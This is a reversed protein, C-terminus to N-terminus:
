PALTYPTTDGDGNTVKIESKLTFVPRIGMSTTFSENTLWIGTSDLTWNDNIYRMNFYDLGGSHSVYRSALWYENNSKLIQLIDMQDYDTKYNNDGIKLSGNKEDTDWDPDDPKSGVSRVSSVYTENLYEQVKEYLTSLYNNYEEMSPLSSTSDSKGITITDVIDKSIIQIGYNTGKEENYSKDYLVICEIIGENGISTNGTDYYVRDGAVLDEITKSTTGEGSTGTTYLDEIPVLYGNPTEIGEETVDVYYRNETDPNATDLINKIDEWDSIAVDRGKELEEAVWNSIDLRAQEKVSAIETERSADSAKTLIGNEGTLMAISVGALILLVIITIVLAILTIGRSNKKIEKM